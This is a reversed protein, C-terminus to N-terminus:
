RGRRLWWAALGSLMGGVVALDRRARGRDSPLRTVALRGYRVLERSLRAALFGDRVSLNKAYFAGKGRGYAWRIRTIEDGSRWARHHVVAEPAYVIRYGAELLRFGLDADEGAPFPTGPGLREDFGGVEVFASRPMAANLFYLPDYAVRGEYVAPEDRLQSTTAIGGPVDPAAPLARGTVVARPGAAALAELLRGLWDREVFVDDDTFVITQERAADVGANRAASVGRPPVHLHRLECGPAALGDLQENPERSEDVVILEAPLRHGTLISEVAETVM